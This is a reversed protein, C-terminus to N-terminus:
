RDTPLASLEAAMEFDRPGLGGDEHTSLEIRVARYSLTIDPYHGMREAVSAAQNLFELARRASAFQWTRVLMDGLRDWGKIEPLRALIEPENLKTM